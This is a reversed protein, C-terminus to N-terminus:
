CDWGDCGMPYVIKGIQIAVPSGNLARDDVDGQCSWSHRYLHNFRTSYKFVKTIRYELLHWDLSQSYNWENSQGFDNGM